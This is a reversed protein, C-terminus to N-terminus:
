KGKSTKGKKMNAGIINLPFAKNQPVGRVWNM